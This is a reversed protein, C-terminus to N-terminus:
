SRRKKSKNENIPIIGKQYNKTLKMAFTALDQAVSEESQTLQHDIYDGLKDEPGLLKIIAWIQSTHPAFYAHMIEHILSHRWDLDNFFLDYVHLQIFRYGYESNCSLVYGHPNDSSYMVVVNLCWDPFLDKVTDVREKILPLLDSPIDQAYTLIM